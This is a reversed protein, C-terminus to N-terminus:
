GAPLRSLGLRRLGLSQSHGLKPLGREGRQDRPDFGMRATGALHNTDDDPPLHETAGVRELSTQMQDLAHAIMAKDNDGWGYTIRAVRLGYQDTEEALTM